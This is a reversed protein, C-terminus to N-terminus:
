RVAPPGPDVPPTGPVPSSARLTTRTSADGGIIRARVAGEGVANGGGDGGAVGVPTSTRWGELTTETRVSGKIRDAFVSGAGQAVGGSGGARYTLWGTGLAWVVVVVVAAVWWRWGGHLENILAAAVAGMLVLSGAGWGAVTRRSV